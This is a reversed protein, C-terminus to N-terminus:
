AVVRISSRNEVARSVVKFKSTAQRLIALEQTLSLTAASSEEALAANQQTVVNMTAVAADIERVNEAQTQASRAYDEVDHSIENINTAIDDLASRVNTVHKVGEDVQASSATILECIEKAARGSRQALERVEQAVVAFGKGSEGARAAEVGANLALLNTQFAIDDIVSIIETIRQSADRIRTIALTADAVVKNSREASGRAVEAKQAIRTAVRAAEQVRSAMENLSIATEELSSAQVETRRALENSGTALEAAEITIRDIVATTNGIAYSLRESARNFNDKLDAAKAPVDGPVRHTLDGEAISQLASSLMEIVIRDEIASREAQEKLVVQDHVDTLSGCCLVAASGPIHAAGGTGRFWRYFGAKTRMRYTIDYRSAGTKYAVCGAFAGSVATADDPHVRDSWSSVVNPFSAEDSFGLLRRMEASWTWTSDAHNADGNVLFADWLGIGCAEDLIRSRRELCEVLAALDGQKRRNRLRFM